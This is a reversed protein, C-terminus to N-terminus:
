QVHAMAYAELAALASKPWHPLLDLIWTNGEWPPIRNRRTVSYRLLRQWYTHEMMRDFDNESSKLVAHLLELNMEDIGLAGSPILFRELVLRVTTDPFEQIRGIFEDHHADTPFKYDIFRYPKAQTEIAALWDDLSWKECARSDLAMM